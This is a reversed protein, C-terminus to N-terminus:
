RSDRGKRIIDRPTEWVRKFSVTPNPYAGIKDFYCKLDQPKTAEVISSPEVKGRNNKM